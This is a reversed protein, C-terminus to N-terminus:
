LNVEERYLSLNIVKRQPMCIAEGEESSEEKQQEYELSNERALSKIYETINWIEM